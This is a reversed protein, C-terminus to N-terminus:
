TRKAQVIKSDDNVRDKLCMKFPKYQCIVKRRILETKVPGYNRSDKSIKRNDGMVFVHGEPVDVWERKRVNWVRENELGIVRKVVVKWNSGKSGTGEPVTRRLSVIDNRQAKENLGYERTFYKKQNLKGIGVTTPAM